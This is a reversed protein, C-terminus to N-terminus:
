VSRLTGNTTTQYTHTHTNENDRGRERPPASFGSSYHWTEASLLQISYIFHRHHEQQNQLCGEEKKMWGGNEMLAEEHGPPIRFLGGVGVVEVVEQRGIGVEWLTLDQGIALPPNFALNLIRTNDKNNSLVGSYIKCVSGCGIIM